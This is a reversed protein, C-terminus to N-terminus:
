AGQASLHKKYALGVGCLTLDKVLSDIFDGFGLRRREEFAERGIGRPTAGTVEVPALPQASERIMTADAKVTDGRAIQLRLRVPRFGFLRFLAIRAGTPVEELVYRGEADTVTLRRTREILVEVGAMPRGTSDDRVTGIMVAQAALPAAPLGLVLVSLIAAPRSAHM